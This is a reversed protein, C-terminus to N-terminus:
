YRQGMQLQLGTFNENTIIGVSHRFLLVCICKQIFTKFLTIVNGFHGVSNQSATNEARFNVDFEKIEYKFVSM